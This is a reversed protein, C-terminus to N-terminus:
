PRLPCLFDPAFTLGWGRFGPLGQMVQLNWTFGSGWDQVRFWAELGDGKLLYAISINSMMIQAGIYPEPNRAEM